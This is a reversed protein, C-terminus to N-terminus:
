LQVFLRPCLIECICEYYSASWNSSDKRREELNMPPHNQYTHISGACVHCQIGNFKTLTYEFHNLHELLSPFFITGLTNERSILIEGEKKDSLAGSWNNYGGKNSSSRGSHSSGSSGGEDMARQGWWRVSSASGTIWGGRTSSGRKRYCLLIILVLVHQYDTSWYSYYYLLKYQDKLLCGVM